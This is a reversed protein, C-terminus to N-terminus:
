IITFMQDLNIGSEIIKRMIGKMTNMDIGFADSLLLCDDKDNLLSEYEQRLIDSTFRNSNFVNIHNLLFYLHNNIADSDKKEEETKDDNKQNQIKNKGKKSYKDTDGKVNLNILQNVSPKEDKIGNIEPVPVSGDHIGNVSGMLNYVKKIEYDMSHLMKKVDDKSLTVIPNIGIGFYEDFLLKDTGLSELVKEVQETTRHGSLANDVSDVGLQSFYRDRCPTDSAYEFRFDIINATEFGKVSVWKNQISDYVLNPTLSRAIKQAISAYSADNILLIINRIEKVSFSRNAMNSAIFFVMKDPHNKVVEKAIKEAEANTVGEEGDFIQVKVNNAGLTEKIIDKIALHNNHGVPTFIMTVANPNVLNSAGKALSRNEKTITTPYERKYLYKILNCFYLYGRIKGSEDPTFMDTMNEMEAPNYGFDLMGSNNLVHWALHVANERIPLVDLIYDRKIYYDYTFVRNIKDANTGTAGYFERCHTDKALKHLKKIQKECCSGFDAEELVMITRYFKTPIRKLPNARREFCSENMDVGESPISDLDISDTGTLAVYYFVKHSPDKLWDLITEILQTERGRYDDPDFFKINEYDSYGEIDSIYSTRVTGVYACMLCIRATGRSFIELITRTKGWRACLDLIVSKMERKMCIPRKLSLVENVVKKIEPWLKPAPNKIIPKVKIYSELDEFFRNFAEVNPIFYSEDTHLPSEDKEGDWIYGRGYKSKFKLFDHGAEDGKDSAWVAIMRFTQTDGTSNYRALVGNTPCKGFKLHLGDNWKGQNTIEAYVYLTLTPNMLVEKKLFERSKFGPEDSVLRNDKIDFM